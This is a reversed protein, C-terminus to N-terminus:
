GDLARSHFHVDSSFEAPLKESLPLVQHDHPTVLGSAVGAQHEGVPVPNGKEPPHATREEHREKVLGAQSTYSYTARHSVWVLVFKAPSDGLHSATAAAAAAEIEITAKCRGKKQREGPIFKQGRETTEVAEASYQSGLAREVAKKVPALSAKDKLNILFATNEPIGIAAFAFNLPVQEHLKDFFSEVDPQSVASAAGKIRFTTPQKGMTRSAIAFPLPLLTHPTAE